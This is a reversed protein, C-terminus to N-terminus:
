RISRTTLLKGGIETWLPLRVFRLAVKEVLQLSINSYVLLLAFFGMSKNIEGFIYVLYVGLEADNWKVTTGSQYAAITNLALTRVADTVLDQDISLISDLFIRLDQFLKLVGREVSIRM